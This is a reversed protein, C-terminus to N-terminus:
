AARARSRSASSPRSGTRRRARPDEARADRAVKLGFEAPSLTAARATGTPSSSTSSTRSRCAARSTCSRGHRRPERRGDHQRPLREPPQHHGQARAPRAPGLLPAGPAGRHRQGRLGLGTFFVHNFQPPTLDVLQKALEIAPPHARRSSATTTRCSSCRGTPPRPWNRGATASTSAGCARWATSSATARALRLPLRGRGQVIVRTGKAALTSSTPSRTCTTSATSSGALRRHQPRRPAAHLTM